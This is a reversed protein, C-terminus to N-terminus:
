HAKIVPRCVIYLHLTKTQIRNSGDVQVPPTPAEHFCCAHREELSQAGEKYQMAIIKAEYLRSM